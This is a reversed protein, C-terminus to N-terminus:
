AVRRVTQAGTEKENYGVALKGRSEDLIKLCAVLEKCMTPSHFLVFTTVEREFVAEKKKYSSCRKRIRCSLRRTRETQKRQLISLSSM